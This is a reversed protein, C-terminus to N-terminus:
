NEVASLLSASLQKDRVLYLQYARIEDPGLLEPSKGLHRAFLSIQGIYARQTEPSLNRIQMEELTRQRLPTM